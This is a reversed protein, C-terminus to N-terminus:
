TLKEFLPDGVETVSGAKLLGYRLNEFRAHTEELDLRSLIERSTTPIFPYLLIAVIRTSELLNYVTNGLESRDKMKWPEKENLYGNLRSIMKRLEGLALHIKFSAMLSDIKAVTREALEKLYPDPSGPPVFGSFYKENLKLVRRVLNGLGNALDSNCVEKLAEETYDGDECTPIERLLFYRFREPGFKEIQEMPDVVNGLTKSMKRGGSTVFGHVLIRKPLPLGASLLMAPWIICHFRSIDKGIVHVEPPWLKRFKESDTAFGSGSLYNTLADCWVYITQSPDGPVKLGWWVTSSPRSFSIDELGSRIFSLAENKRSEPIIEIEGSELIKELARGYKSLKFFYNEEEVAEVEGHYPCRGNELERETKFAECGQCYLGRYKKKYIDGNKELTKWLKEVAPKHVKPDSTRIFFDFSVNLLSLMKRYEAVIRDVFEKPALGAREASKQNKIGHEDTGTLFFVERGKMRQWRAIADAIVAEFAFGTHPPGNTYPISTTLFFKTM